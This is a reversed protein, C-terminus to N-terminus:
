EAALRRGVVSAWEAALEHGEAGLGALLGVAVRAEGASILPLRDADDM